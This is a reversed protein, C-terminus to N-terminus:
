EKEAWTAWTLAEELHKNLEALDGVHGWHKQDECRWMALRKAHLKRMNAYFRDMERTYAELATEAKM